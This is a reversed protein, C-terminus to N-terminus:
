KIWKLAQLLCVARAPANQVGGLPVTLRQHVACAIHGTGFCAVYGPLSYQNVPPSTSFFILVSRGTHVTRYKNALALLVSSHVVHTVGLPSAIRISLFSITCSASMCSLGYTCALAHSGDCATHRTHSLTSTLISPLISCPLHNDCVTLRMGSFPVTRTSLFPLYQLISVHLIGALIGALHGLFSANPTLLQIYILEAWTVYQLCLLCDSFYLVFMLLPTLYLVFLRCQGCPKPAGSAGSLQDLHQSM